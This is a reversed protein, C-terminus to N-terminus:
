FLTYIDSIKESEQEPQFLSIIFLFPLLCVAPINTTQCAWNLVTVPWPARNSSVENTQYLSGYSTLSFSARPVWSSSSRSSKSFEASTVAVSMVRVMIHFVVWLLYYRAVRAFLKASKNWIRYPIRVVRPFILGLLCACIIAMAAYRAASLFNTVLALATLAISSVALCFSRLEARRLANPLTITM